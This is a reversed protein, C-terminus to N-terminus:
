KEIGLLEVTFVLASYPKIMGGTNAAGYAQEQPIYLTWKSGVPMAQLAKAWGPIVGGVPFVAPENRKYSSDFVTGDILKGEYNVKVKSDATPVEGKGEVEVEYFIGDSLAQVGEKKAINAMYEENQTKWEGFEKEIQKQRFSQFMAMATSDAEHLTMLGGKETVGAVFGALFNDVSVTNVSDEPGFLQYNISRIIQNSIQQGIQVGAYYAKSKPDDSAKAAENLGKIFEDMYTTDVGMQVALYNKLGQSQTMGAAYSLTDLEEKLDAKPTGNGCSSVIAAVVLAAIVSFKKM